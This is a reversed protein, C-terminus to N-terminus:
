NPASSPLGAQPKRVRPLKLLFSVPELASPAAVQGYARGTCPAEFQARAAVMLVTTLPREAIEQKLGLAGPLTFAWSRDPSGVWAM